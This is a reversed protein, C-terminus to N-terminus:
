PLPWEFANDLPAGRADVIPVTTFQDPPSYVYMGTRLRYPPPPADTPLALDFASLLSDGSRWLAVRHGPGDAQAVRQEGSLLHNAFSYGQPPPDPPPAIVRWYPVLRTTQGLRPPAHVAPPPTQGGPLRYFRYRGVDERLRVDLAPLPQAFAPVLDAAPETGPALVLLTDADSRPLLVTARGDAIRLDLTRGAMFGYIAPCADWRPDDGPCLLVAQENGWAASQERITRAVDRHIRIPTGMGGPTDHQNVFAHISLSLYGQWAILAILSLAVLAATWRHPPAYPQAQWAESPHTQRAKTLGTRSGPRILPSVLQTATIALALYPAPYVPILYHPYVATRSRLFFLAPGILWLLLLGNRALAHRNRRQRVCQVGLYLASLVVGAEQVRDPWYDLDIIGDLFERYREPGALAHIERGGVNLLAYRLAQWQTQTPDGAAQVLARVNRWNGQADAALYPLYLLAALALGVGLPLWLSAASRRRLRQLLTFVIALGVVPALALAAFHIQTLASLTVLAACVAWRRREVIWAYLLAMLLLGFPLLLDQAWVKRSYFVAWPSTGLTLAALLGAAPGWHRRAFAYCGWVAAVNLLAVWATVAWPDRSLLVPLSLLYVAMPPNDIGTSTGMGRLPIRGTDVFHAALNSVRAEDFKFETADLNWLRLFAAWILIAVLAVTTWTSRTRKTDM